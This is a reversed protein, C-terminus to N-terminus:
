DCEGRRPLAYERRGPNGDGARFGTYVTVMPAVGRGKMTARADQGHECRPIFFVQLLPKEEDMVEFVPLIGTGRNLNRFRSSVRSVSGRWATNV